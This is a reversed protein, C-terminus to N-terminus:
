RGPEPKGPEAKGPLSWPHSLEIRQAPSPCGLANRVARTPSGGLLRECLTLGLETSDGSSAATFIKGSQLVRRDTDLTTRPLEPALWAAVEPTTAIRQEALLGAAGLLAAGAGLACV